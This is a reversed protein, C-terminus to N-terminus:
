YPSFSSDLSRIDGSVFSVNDKGGIDKDAQIMYGPAYYDGCSFKGNNYIFIMLDSNAMSNSGFGIAGYYGKSSISDKSSPLYLYFTATLITSDGTLTAYIFAQSDKLFYVQVGNMNGYDLENSLQCNITYICLLFVLIKEM